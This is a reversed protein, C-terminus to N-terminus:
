HDEAGELGRLIVQAGRRLGLTQAASEDRMVIALAGSSDQLFFPQGSPGGSFHTARASVVHGAVEVFAEPAALAQRALTPGIDSILNGYHDVHAIRGFWTDGERRPAFPIPLRVLAAPSLPSGLAAIEMGNALHAACPAFIDRGHFTASAGTLHLSVNDLHVCETVAEASDAAALLPNTFLGNDPGVFYRDHAHLAIARRASGVGPDVVCLLVSGAPFYRWAIGLSWAGMEIDQPRIDHTIDVIQVGPAISLIVAKMVGVYGDTLGFDTLMGVMPAQAM